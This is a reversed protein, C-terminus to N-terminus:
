AKLLSSLVKKGNENNPNLEVSKQYMKIADEKKGCQLLAEGYSDYINWSETFILSGTKFTQLANENKQLRLFQYGLRNFDRENAEFSKPNKLYVDILQNAKEINGNELLNGYVRSLNQAPITYPKNDMLQLVTNLISYVPCNGTNSLLIVTQNKTINHALISTLGTISGDHFVIKGNSEDTYMGWGLGYSMEKGELNYTAKKGDNLITATLAEELEKKGLIQYTFLANQYKQLDLATSVIGGNGYFNSKEFILFPEKLTNINAFDTSYFNPYMYLEVQNPGKIKRNIPVFSDKMKAPDFINKEMYNAYSIGSVKEIILAAICFNINNYDWKSGPLFALPTKFRIFTPIIDQNSIIKEPQEKIISDFLNYYQALGSTNNLLQKITINPYPFDSLYKQVPDDIKLKGKQKLQLIATATFTKTVSAIPFRSNDNFKEKKEINSFGYTNSFITKESKSIVVSGKFLNRESLTSFLNNLEQASVTNTLFSYLLIFFLIKKM